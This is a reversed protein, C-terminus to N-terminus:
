LPTVRAASLQQPLRIDSILFRLYHSHTYNGTNYTKVNVSAGIDFNLVYELLDNDGIIWNSPQFAPVIRQGGYEVALGTFGLHGSPIKLELRDITCPGLTCVTTQPTAIATGAPTAITFALVRQALVPGPM